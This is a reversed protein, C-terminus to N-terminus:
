RGEDKVYKGIRLITEPLIYQLAGDKTAISTPNTFNLLEVQWEKTVLNM